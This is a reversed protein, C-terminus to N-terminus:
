LYLLELVEKKTIKTIVGNCDDKGFSLYVTKNNEDVLLGSGFEIPVFQNLINFIKSNAVVTFPPESEFMYLFNKRIMEGDVEGRIHGMGLFYDKGSVNFLQPPAGNGIDEKFNMISPITNCFDFCDGTRHNIKLIKHPKISYVAYLEGKYEFPMWNKEIKTRNKYNLIVPNQSNDIPFIIIHHGFARTDITTQFPFNKGRFYCIIWHKGQFEFIRSDEFGQYPEDSLNDKTFFPNIISPDDIKDNKLNIKYKVIASSGEKYNEFNKLYSQFGSIVSLDIPTSKNHSNLCNKLRPIMLHGSIRSIVILDTKNKDTWQISPNYVFYHTKEPSVVHFSSFRDINNDLSVNLHINPKDTNKKVLCFIYVFLICLGISLLLNLKM